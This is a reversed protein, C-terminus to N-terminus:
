GPLATNPDAGTPAARAAVLVMQALVRGVRFGAKGSGIIFVASPHMKVFPAVSRLRVIPM